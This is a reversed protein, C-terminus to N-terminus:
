SPLLFLLDETYKRPKQKSCLKSVTGALHVQYSPLDTATVHMIHMCNIFCHGTSDMCMFSSVYFVVSLSVAIRKKKKKKFSAVKKKNDKNM